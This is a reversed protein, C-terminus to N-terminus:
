TEWRGGRVLQQMKLVLMRKAPSPFQHCVAASLTEEVIQHVAEGTGSGDIGIHQVNHRTLMKSSSTPRSKSSWAAYANRDHFKGGAVMPVANVSVLAATM